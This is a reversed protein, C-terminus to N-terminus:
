GAVIIAVAGAIITGIVCILLKSHWRVEAV